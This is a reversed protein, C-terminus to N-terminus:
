TFFKKLKNESLFYVSVVLFRETDVVNRKKKMEPNGKM